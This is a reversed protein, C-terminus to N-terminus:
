SLLFLINKEANNKRARRQETDSEECVCERISTNHNPIHKNQEKKIKEKMSCIFVFYAQVDVRSIRTEVLLYSSEISDLLWM